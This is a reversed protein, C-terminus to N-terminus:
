NRYNENDVGAIKLSICILSEWLLRVVIILVNKYANGWFCNISM